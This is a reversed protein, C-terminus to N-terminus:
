SQPLTYPKRRDCDQWTDAEPDGIFRWAAPDWRLPRRHWYALNVLHCVAASRAGVEVDCIPRRRTRIADLWDAHHNPAAPLREDADTLPQELIKAPNSEIRERTVFISGETGIFTIGFPGSHFVHVEAAPDTRGGGSGGQQTRYVLRAGHTAHPDAPPHVEVPGSSDANLAWQVIDFHHAGWDTIMGGSYERYQRWDPYHNHIGRPSLISNYPRVPAPGLWRDWDLGPEAPEEPLDCWRSSGGIGVHVATLTGIRANRVYECATRFRGDYETRQQSGTQLIRNHKRVADICLRSERLTLTLPKECYIDKGAKCADIIQIAHWHDPTAIVVADIDARALLDRHDNYAACDSSAYRADVAAKAHDRRTTDVDCVALVKTFPNDLFRSLHDRNMIGMGIFGLALRASPPPSSTPAPQRGMLRSPIFLPAAAIGAATALFSRRDTEAHNM